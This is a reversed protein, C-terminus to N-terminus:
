AQGKTGRDTPAQIDHAFASVISLVMFGVILLPVVFGTAMLWDNFLHGVVFQGLM